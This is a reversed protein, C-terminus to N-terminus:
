CGQTAVSRPYLEASDIVYLSLFQTISGLPPQPDNGESTGVVLSVHGSFPGRHWLCYWWSEQMYDAVIITDNYYVDYGARRLVEETPAIEDLSWFRFGNPDEDLAIGSRLLDAYDPPLTRSKEIVQAPTYKTLSMGCMAWYAHVNSWRDVVPGM